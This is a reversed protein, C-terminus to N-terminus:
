KNQGHDRDIGNGDVPEEASLHLLPVTLRILGGCRNQTSEVARRRPHSAGRFPRCSFEGLSRSGIQMASITVAPACV